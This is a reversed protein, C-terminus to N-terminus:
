FFVEQDIKRMWGFLKFRYPLLIQRFMCHNKYLSFVARLGDKVLFSMVEMDLFAHIGIM